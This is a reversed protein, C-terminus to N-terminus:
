QVLRIPSRLHVLSNNIRMISYMYLSTHINCGYLILYLVSKSALICM